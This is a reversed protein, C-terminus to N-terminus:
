PIYFYEEGTRGEEGVERKGQGQIPQEKIHNLFWVGLIIEPFALDLGLECLQKRDLYSLNEGEKM